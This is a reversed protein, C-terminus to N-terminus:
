KSDILSNVKTRAPVEVIQVYFPTVVVPCALGSRASWSRASIRFGRDMTKPLLIESLLVVLFWITLFLQFKNTWECLVILRKSGFYFLRLFNDIQYSVTSSKRAQLGPFSNAPRASSKTLFV